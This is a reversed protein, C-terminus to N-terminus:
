DNDEGELLESFSKKVDEIDKYKPVKKYSDECMLALAMLNIIKDSNDLEKLIIQIAELHEGCFCDNMDADEKNVEKILQELKTIATNVDM